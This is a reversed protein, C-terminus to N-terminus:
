KVIFRDLTKMKVVGQNLETLTTYNSIINILNKRTFGNTKKVSNLLRLKDQASLKGWIFTNGSDVLYEAIETLQEEVIEQKIVSNIDFINTPLIKLLEPNNSKLDEVERGVQQEYFEILKVLRVLDENSYCGSIFKFENRLDSQLHALLSKIYAISYYNIVRQKRPPMNLPSSMLLVSGMTENDTINLTKDDIDIGKYWEKTYIDPEVGLINAENIRKEVTELDSKIFNYFKNNKFLKLMDKLQQYNRIDKENLIGIIEFCEVADSATEAFKSKKSIKLELKSISVDSLKIM